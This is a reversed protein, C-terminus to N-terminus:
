ATTYPSYAWSDVKEEHCFGAKLRDHVLRTIIKKLRCLMSAEQPTSQAVNLQGDTDNLAQVVQRSADSTVSEYKPECKRSICAKTDFDTM